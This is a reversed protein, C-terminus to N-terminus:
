QSLLAVHSWTVGADQSRELGSLTTCGVGKSSCRTAAYSLWLENTSAMVVDRAGVAGPAIAHRWTGGGDLSIYLGPGSAVAWADRSLISTPLPLGAGYIAFEADFLPTTPIWNQGGSTTVYFAVERGSPSDFFAPLVGSSGFFSPLVLTARRVGQQGTLPPPVPLSVETWSRGGDTTRFLKDRPYDLGWGIRDSAFRIPGVRASPSDHTQISQWSRGGDATVFLESSGAVGSGHQHEVSLWGVLDSVFSLSTKGHPSGDGLAVSVNTWSVGADETRAVTLAGTASVVTLVAHRGSIFASDDIHGGSVDPGAAVLWHAGGDVTHFLQRESRAWAIGPASMGLAVVTPGLAVVTPSLSSAVDHHIAATGCASLSLCTGLFATGIAGAKRTPPRM